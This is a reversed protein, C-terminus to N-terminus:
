KQGKRLLINMVPFAFICIIIGFIILEFFVSYSFKAYIKILSQIAVLVFCLYIHKEWKTKYKEGVIIKRLILIVFSSVVSAITAGQLGILNILVINLVLNVAIGIVSSIAMAKSKKKASLIAGYIGSNTNLVVALVLLPVYQWAIYFDKAFLFTALWETIIIIFSAGVLMAANVMLVTTDFFSKDGSDDDYEKIASIQWGQNFIGQLVSLMNPIKYAISLIGNAAVGIFFTVTFKSIASNGWWVLTNVILPVCYATMDRSVSKDTHPIIHKWVKTNILLFIAPIIQSIINALFFGNLKWEFVLLFLLNSLVLSLTGIVGAFGISKIKELGKAVQVSFQHIVYTVYYLFILLEYGAFSTIPKFIWFVLTIGSAVLISWSVYKFAISIVDSSKYKKDLLFRMVADIINITLIPYLLEVISISLDYIGYEETSLVNTYLPLLFFILIKSSFQSITFIGINKLLYKFKEIM